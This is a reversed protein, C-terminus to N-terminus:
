RQPEPLWGPPPIMPAGPLFPASATRSSQFPIRRHAGASRDGAVRDDHAATVVAEHSGRVHRPRPQSGQHELAPFHDPARGHGFLEVGAEADGRQSVGGLQELLGDHPVEAQDPVAQLEQTRRHAEEGRAEVACRGDTEHVVGRAGRLFDGGERGPVRAPVDLVDSLRERM